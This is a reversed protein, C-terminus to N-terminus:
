PNPNKIGEKRQKQFIILKVYKWLIERAPQQKSWCGFCESLNGNLWSHKNEHREERSCLSIHPAPRPGTWRINAAKLSLCSLAFPPSVLARTWKRVQAEQAQLHHFQALQCLLNGVTALTQLAGAGEDRLRLLAQFLVVVGAEELGGSVYCFPPLHYINSLKKRSRGSM